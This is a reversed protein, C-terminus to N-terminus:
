TEINSEYDIELEKLTIKIQDATYSSLYMQETSEDVILTTLMNLCIAPSLIKRVFNDARAENSPISMQMCDFSLYFAGFSVLFQFFFIEAPLELVAWLAAFLLGIGSYFFGVQVLWSYDGEFSWYHGAEHAAISIVDIEDLDNM